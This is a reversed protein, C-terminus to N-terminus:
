SLNRFTLPSIGYNKKFLRSFSALDSYGIESCIQTVDKGTTKLMSSAVNLRRNTLYQFPTLRFANKFQRLFYHQNLCAVNSIEGLTLNFNYSSYIFDKARTLRKYLELKTSRKVPALMKIENHIHQQTLVMAEFLLYLLESTRDENLVEEEVSAKLLRLLPSVSDDHQYLKEVFRVAEVSDYYFPDDLSRSPDSLIAQLAMKEFLPSFHITFTNVESAADIHSSYLEDGNLILYNTPDVLYFSNVKRYYEEGGFSTKISLPGWHSPYSYFNCLANVIVNNNVFCGSNYKRMDFGVSALDPLETMYVVGVKEM